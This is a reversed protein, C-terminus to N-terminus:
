LERHALLYEVWPLLWLSQLLTVVIATGCPVRAQEKGARFLQSYAGTGLEAKLSVMNTAALQGRCSYKCWLVPCNSCILAKQGLFLCHKALM